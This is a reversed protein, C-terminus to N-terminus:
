NYKKTVINCIDFIKNKKIPIFLCIKIHFEEKTAANGCSLLLLIVSLSLSFNVLTWEEAAYYKETSLEVCLHSM